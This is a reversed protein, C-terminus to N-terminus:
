DRSAQREYKPGGMASKIQSQYKKIVNMTAYMEPTGKKKESEIEEGIKKFLEPNSQVMKLVLERQDAPMGAMQKEILMSLAKNKINSFLNGFM